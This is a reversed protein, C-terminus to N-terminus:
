RRLLPPRARATRGRPAPHAGGPVARLRARPMPGRPWSPRLGSARPRPTRRCRSRVPQASPVLACRAFSRDPSTNRAIQRLVASTMPDAVAGVLRLVVVLLPRHWCTDQVGIPSEAPCRRTRLGNARFELRWGPRRRGAFSNGRAHPEARRDRRGLFTLQHAEETGVVADGDQAPRAVTGM